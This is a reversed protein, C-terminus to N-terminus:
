DFTMVGGRHNNEELSDKYQNLLDLFPSLDTDNFTLSMGEESVSKTGEYNEKTIANQTMKQVIVALKSDIEDIDLYLKIEDIANEIYIKVQDIRPDDDKFFNLTEINSLVKDTVSKGNEDNLFDGRNLRFLLAM